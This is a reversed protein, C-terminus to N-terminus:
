KRLDEESSRQGPQTSVRNKGSSSSSFMQSSLLRYIKGFPAFLVLSFNINMTLRSSRAWNLCFTRRMKIFIQLHPFTWTFTVVHRFGPPDQPRPSRTRSSISVDHRWTLNKEARPFIIKTLCEGFLFQQCQTIIPLLQYNVREPSWIAEM